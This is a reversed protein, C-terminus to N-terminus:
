PFAGVRATFWAPQGSFERRASHRGADSLYARGSSMSQETSYEGGAKFIGWLFRSIWCLM